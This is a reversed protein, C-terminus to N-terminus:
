HNLFIIVVNSVIKLMTSANRRGACGCFIHFWPKGPAGGGGGAGTLAAPDAFLRPWPGLVYQQLPCM